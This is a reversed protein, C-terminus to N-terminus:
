QFHCLTPRPIVLLEITEGYLKWCNRKYSRIIFKQTLVHPQNKKFFCSGHCQLEEASGLTALLQRVVKHEVAM